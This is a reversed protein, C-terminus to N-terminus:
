IFLRMLIGQSGVSPPRAPQTVQDVTPPAVPPKVPTPMAPMLPTTQPPANWNQQGTPQTSWQSAQPTTFTPQQTQPQYMANYPAHSAVSGVSSVSQRSQSYRQATQKNYANQAHSPRTQYAQKHGLSYYLRERLETMEPDDSPMLYALASSLAGQAALLSAYRSLLDAFKGTAGVNRGQLEVAKQLLIVVEVLEQLDQTENGNQEDTTKILQWTEVVKEVNGACIYCLIANEVNKRDDEALLREALCECLAPMDFGAHTVIAVLVDRWSDTTCQSVVGMWDKTVLASILHALYGDRKKLYQHQTRALLESGGKKSAFFLNFVM